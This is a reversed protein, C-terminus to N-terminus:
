EVLSEEFERIGSGIDLGAEDQQLLLTPVLEADLASIYVRHNNSMVRILSNIYERTKYIRASERYPALRGNQRVTEGWARMHTSWRDARVQHLVEAATGNAGLLLGRVVGAQEIHADSGSDLTDLVALEQLIQEGREVSGSVAALSSIAVGEAAKIGAAVGEQAALVREFESAVSKSEGKGGEPTGAPPHLGAVGVFMIEVGSLLEDLDAQILDKLEVAMQLRGEGLVFDISKGTCYRNVVRVAVSEIYLERSSRRGGAFEIFNLLGYRGNLDIGSKIRYQIPVEANVVAVKSYAEEVNNEDVLNDEVGYNTPKVIFLVDNESEGHVDGWLMPHGDYEPETGVVIDDMRYVPYKMTREWPFKLYSGSEYVRPMESSDVRGYSGFSVVIAQEYPYVVMVCNLAVLIVFCLGFLPFIQRSLLKYFWTSTVEFGFQYNVADSISKVVTDPAAFLSLVRSDFAPRPFEGPRRPRYLNLVFNIAIEIGALLTYIPVVRALFMMVADNGDRILFGHGVVLMVNLLATGVAVSAGGRMIVWAPQKSMGAVFRSFLFCLIAVGAAIALGYAAWVSDAVLLRNAFDEDVSLLSAKDNLEARQMLGVTIMGGAVLLSVIPILYHHMWRLRSAAVNLGEDGVDFISGSRTVESEIRSAEMSELRELYHQHFVVGLVVWVPLGLLMYYSVAQTVDDHVSMGFILITLSAVSQLIFGWISIKTAFRYTTHDIRMNHNNRM